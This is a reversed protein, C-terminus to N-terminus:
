SSSKTQNGPQEVAGCCGQTYCSHIQTSLQVHQWVSVSTTIFWDWGAVTYQCQSTWDLCQGQLALQRVPYGVNYVHMLQGQVAVQRVPYMPIFQGKVPVLQGQLVVQRVPYVPMLQGQSPMQRVPHVPMLQGQSPMQRVPYVPM